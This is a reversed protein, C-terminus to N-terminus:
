FVFAWWTKDHFFPLLGLSPMRVASHQYLTSRLVLPVVLWVRLLRTAALLPVAGQVGKSFKRLGAPDRLVFSPTAHCRALFSGAGGFCCQSMGRPAPEGCGWPRRTGSPVGDGEIGPPPVPKPPRGGHARRLRTAGCPERIRGYAKRCTFWFYAHSRRFASLSHNAAGSASSVLSSAFANCGIFPVASPFARFIASWSPRLPAVPLRFRRTAVRLHHVRAVLLLVPGVRAACARLECTRLSTRESGRTGYDLGFSFAHSRRFASLSHNAAGSASSVLSSAFANCGIFPVARPFARFVASWSPRM